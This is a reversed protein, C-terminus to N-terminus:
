EQRQIYFANDAKTFGVKPYYAMATPVSLLLLMCQPGIAEQTLAILQRGIGAGQYEPNVALDSLYCCFHFDTVSRAVGILQEGDWASVVIDSHAYM